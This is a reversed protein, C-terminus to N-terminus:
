ETTLHVLRAVDLCLDQDGTRRGLGLGYILVQELGHQQVPRHGQIHFVRQHGAFVENMPNQRLRGDAIDFYRICVAIFHVSVLVGDIDLQIDEAHVQQEREIREALCIQPFGEGFFDHLVRQIGEVEIKGIRVLIVFIGKGLFLKLEVGIMQESVQGVDFVALADLEQLGIQDM